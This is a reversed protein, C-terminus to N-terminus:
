RPRGAVVILDGWSPLWRAFMDVFRVLGRAVPKPVAKLLNAWREVGWLLSIGVVEEVHVYKAVQSRILDPDYRTFHDPPVHYHTRWSLDKRWRDRLRLLRCGLSDFNAVAVVVRGGKRTVRAMEALAGEPDGFHDISGKCFAGDFCESAFPLSESWARVRTIRNGHDKWGRQEAIMPRLGTMSASPEVDTAYVGREALNQSDLGIGAASDLVRAGPKLRLAAYSVDRMRDYLYESDPDMGVPFVASMDRDLDTVRVAPM